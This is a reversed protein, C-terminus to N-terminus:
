RITVGAQGAVDPRGDGDADSVQVGANIRLHEAVEADIGAGANYTVGNQDVAM